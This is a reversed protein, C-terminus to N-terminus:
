GCALAASQQGQDLKRRRGAPLCLREEHLTREHGSGKSRPPSRRSRVLPTATGDLESARHGSQADEAFVIRQGVTSALAPPDHDALTEAIERAIITRAGCRNLVFRAVLQPRYIRAERLLALMAASAWGDFPSPQM